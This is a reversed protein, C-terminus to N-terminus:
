NRMSPRSTGPNEPIVPVVSSTSGSTSNAFPAGFNLGSVMNQFPFSGYSGYSSRARADIPAFASGFTLFPFANSTVMQQNQVKREVKKKISEMAEKLQQLQFFNLEEIPAEWWHDNDRKRAQLAEGRNKEMQLIGEINMLEMNLDRVSANRHAVILQDHGNNPPYNRTLFRDVVSDVCPHGFSYVKKGPSFVVLAVEAGCLTCLESAKKFLGARRKSFTVQLNSENKMKVMDVKQRGKSRRAM